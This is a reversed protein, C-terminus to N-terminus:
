RRVSIGPIDQLVTEFAKVQDPDVVWEVPIGRAARVQSIAEERWEQVGRISPKFFGERDFMFDPMRAKHDLLTGDVFDDFATGNVVYEKIESVGDARRRMGRGTMQAQHELSPGSRRGKWVWEGPGAGGASALGARGEAEMSRSLRLRAAEDRLGNVKAAASREAALTAEDVDNVAKAGVRKLREARRSLISVASGLVVAGGYMALTRRDGAKWAAHFYSFGKVAGIGPGLDTVADLFTAGASGFQRAASRASDIRANRDAWMSAIDYEDTGEKPEEQLGWPDYRSDSVVERCSFGCAQRGWLSLSASAGVRFPPLLEFGGIRTEPYSPPPGRLPTPGLLDLPGLGFREEHELEREVLAIDGLDFHPLGTADVDAVDIPALSALLGAEDARTATLSAPPNREWVSTRSAEAPPSLLVALALLVFPRTIRVRGM